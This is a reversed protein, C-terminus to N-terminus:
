GAKSRNDSFLAAMAGGMGSLATCGLFAVFVTMLMVLFLKSGDSFVEHIQQMQEESLSEGSARMAETLLSELNGGSFSVFALAIAHIGLLLMFFLLGAIWGLRFGNAYGLKSRTRRQYTWAAFFGGGGILLAKFLIPLPLLVMPPFLLAASFFGLRVVTRNRLDIPEPPGQWTSGEAGAAEPPQSAASAQVPEPQSVTQEPEPEILHEFVPRGCRHCFLANEALAAGCTCHTPRPAQEMKDM